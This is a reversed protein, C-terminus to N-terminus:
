QVPGYYLLKDGEIISLYLKDEIQDCNLVKSHYRSNFLKEFDINNEGADAVNVTGHKSGTTTSPEAIVDPDETMIRGTWLNVDNEINCIVTDKISDM